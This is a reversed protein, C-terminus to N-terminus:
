VRTATITFSQFNFIGIAPADTGGSGLDIMRVPFVSLPEIFGVHGIAQILDPLLVGDAAPSAPPTAAETPAWWINEWVIKVMPTSEGVVNEITGDTCLWGSGVLKSSYRVNSTISGDAAIVYEIPDFTTLALQSLTDIHPAHVVRWTGAVSAFDVPKSYAPVDRLVDKIHEGLSTRLAADTRVTDPSSALIRRAAEMSPTALALGSSAVLSLAVMEPYRPQHAEDKRPVPSRSNGYM